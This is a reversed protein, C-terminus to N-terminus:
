YLLLHFFSHTSSHIYSHILSQSVSQSFSHIFSHIFSYICSHSFSQIFLYLFLYIFPHIFAHIFSYVFSNIFSYIFSHILSQSFSHIFSHIYCLCVCPSRQVSLRPTDRWTDMVSHWRSRKMMVSPCWWSSFRRRTTRWSRLSGACYTLLVTLIVDHDAFLFDCREQIQRDTISSSRVVKVQLTWKQYAAVDETEEPWTWM